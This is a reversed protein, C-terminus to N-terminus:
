SRRELMQVGKLDLTRQYGKLVKLTYVLREKLLKPPIPKMSVDM